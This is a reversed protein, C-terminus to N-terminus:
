SSHKAVLALGNSQRAGVTWPKSEADIILDKPNFNRHRMIANNRKDEKYSAKETEVKDHVHCEKIELNELYKSLINLPTTM